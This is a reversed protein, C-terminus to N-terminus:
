SCVCKLSIDAIWWWEGAKIKLVGRRGLHVLILLSFVCFCDFEVCEYKGEFLCVTTLDLSASLIWKKWQQSLRQWTCGLMEENFKAFCVMKCVVGQYEYNGLAIGAFSHVAVKTCIVTYHWRQSTNTKFSRIPYCIPYCGVSIRKSVNSLNTLLITKSKSTTTVTVYKWTWM